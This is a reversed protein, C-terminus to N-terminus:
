ATRGWVHSVSATWGWGGTDLSPADSLASVAGKCAMWADSIDKSLRLRDALGSPDAADSPRRGTGCLLLGVTRSVLGGVEDAAEQM